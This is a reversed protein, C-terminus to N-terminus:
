VQLFYQSERAYTAYWDDDKSLSYNEYDPSTSIFEADVNFENIEVDSFINAM